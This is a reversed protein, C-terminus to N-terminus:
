ACLRSMRRIRVQQEPSHRVPRVSPMSRRIQLSSTRTGGLAGLDVAEGSRRPAKAAALVTALPLM